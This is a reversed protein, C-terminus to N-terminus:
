KQFRQLRIRSLSEPTIGLYSAIHYNPVIQEIDPYQDIFDDYRQAAPLMLQDIIRKQLTVLHMELAKRQVPEFQPFKTLLNQLGEFSFVIVESKKVSEVTLRAVKDTHLAIYDSIWWNKVAFQLTHEKGDIDTCFSRLCGEKIFFVNNVRQGERILTQGKLLSKTKAIAYFYEIAESSLFIKNQLHQIFEEM